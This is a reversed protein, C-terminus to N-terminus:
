KMTNQKKSKEMSIVIRENTLGSYANENKKQISKILVNDVAISVGIIILEINPMSANEVLLVVLNAFYQFNM